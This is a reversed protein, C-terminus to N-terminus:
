YRTNQVLAPNRTIATASIPFLERWTQGSNPYNGAGFDYNYKEEVKELLKGHRLLDTRRYGEHYLEWGREELISEATLSTLDTLGARQRLPNIYNLAEATNGLNFQAEAYTLYVEGLRMLPFDHGTDESTGEVLPFKLTIVRNIAEQVTLANGNQDVYIPDGTNINNQIGAIAIGEKTLPDFAKVRQDNPDFTSYFYNSMGYGNSASVGEIGLGINLNGDMSLAVYKNGKNLQQLHVVALIIENNEDNTFVDTYDAMLSAGSNDIVDKAYSASLADEKQNLYYNALFAKVAWTTPRGFDEAQEPLITEIALMEAEVFSNIEEISNRAIGNSVDEKGLILPVGGYATGLKYYSYARWFRAEAVYQNIESDAEAETEFITVVQNAQAIVKYVEEYMQTPQSHEPTLNLFSQNGGWGNIDFGWNLAFEDTGAETALLWHNGRYYSFYQVFEYIGNAAARAGEVGTLNNTGVNTYVEEELLSDSCSNFLVGLCILTNIIKIKKM